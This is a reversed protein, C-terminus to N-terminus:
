KPLNEKFPFVMEHLTKSSNAIKEGCFITFSPTTVFSKEVKSEGRLILNATYALLHTDRFKESNGIKSVKKQVHFPTDPHKPSGLQPLIDTRQSM